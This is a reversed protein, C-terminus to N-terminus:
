KVKKKFFHAASGLSVSGLGILGFLWTTTATKPLREGDEDEKTTKETDEAKSKDKDTATKDTEKDKNIDRDKDKDTETNDTEKDKNIEN